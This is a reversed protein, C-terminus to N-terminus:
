AAYKELFQTDKIDYYIKLHDTIELLASTIKSYYELGDASSYKEFYYADALLIVTLGNRYEEINDFASFSQDSIADKNNSSTILSTVWCLNIQHLFWTADRLQDGTFKDRHDDISYFGRNCWLLLEVPEFKELIISIVEQKAKAMRALQDNTM